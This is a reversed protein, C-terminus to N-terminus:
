NKSHTHIDKIHKPSHKPARRSRTNKTGKCLFQAICLEMVHDSSSSQKNVTNRKTKRRDTIQLIQNLCWVYLVRQFCGISSLM